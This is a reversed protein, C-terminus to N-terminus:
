ANKEFTKLLLKLHFVFFFDSFWLTKTEDDNLM